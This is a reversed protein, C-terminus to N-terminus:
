VGIDNLLAFEGFSLTAANNYAIIADRIEVYRGLNIMRRNVTIHAYWKGRSSDWSVGKYGSTSNSQLGRNAANQSRTALRLNSRRNDLPDRNIHDIEIGVPNGMIQRHMSINKNGGTNRIANPSGDGSPSYSWKYQSLEEYDDDDVMARFGKTLEIYKM